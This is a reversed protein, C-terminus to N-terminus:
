YAFVADGFNSENFIGVKTADVTSLRWTTEWTAKTVKHEIGEILCIQDFVSGTGDMPRRRVEVRTLLDFGLVPGFLMTPDDAPNIVVSDIRPLSAKGVNLEFNARGVLDSLYYSLLSVSQTRKGYVGQSATDSATQPAFGPASAVVENVIDVDDYPVSLDNLRYPEEAATGSDGLVISVSSYPSRSTHYRDFFTLNGAADIFLAGNETDAQDQMGKLVTNKLWNDDAGQVVTQGADIATSTPMGTYTALYAIRAGTTEAQRPFIGANYHNLVQTASLATNYIAVEDIFGQMTIQDAGLTPTGGVYHSNLAPSWASSSVSGAAVGDVYLTYVNGSTVTGVLHHWKGDVVDITTAIGAFTATGATVTSTQGSTALSLTPFTATPQLLALITQGMYAPSDDPKGLRAWCEMSFNNALSFLNYGGGPAFMADQNGTYFSPDIDAILAGPQQFGYTLPVTKPVALSNIDELRLTRGNGTSDAATTSGAPENFRNWVIPADAAIVTQYYNISSPKKLNLFKTADVATVTVTSDNASPWVLPWSEVFGYFQPLTVAGWIARIRLPTGPRILGYYPGTTNFPSYRGSKNDLTVTATGAEFRALIHQRGRKTSFQTVDGTVATWAPNADNPGYGFALEIIRTPFRGQNTEVAPSNAVPNGAYPGGGYITSGNTPM